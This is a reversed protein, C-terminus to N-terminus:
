EFIAKGFYEPEHFKGNPWGSPVISPGAYRSRNLSIGFYSNKEPVLGIEKLPISMEVYWCGEGKQTRVKWSVLWAIDQKYPEKSCNMEFRSGAAGTGFLYYSNKDNDSDIFVEVDDYDWVPGDHEIPCYTM